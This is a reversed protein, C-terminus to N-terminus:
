SLDGRETGPTEGAMESCSCTGLAYEQTLAHIPPVHLCLLLLSDLVKSQSLRLFSLHSILPFLSLVCPSIRLTCVTINSGLLRGEEMPAGLGWGM